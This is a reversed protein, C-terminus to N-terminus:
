RRRGQCLGMPFPYPARRGRQPGPQSGACCGPAEPGSSRPTPAPHTDGGRACMRPPPCTYWLVCAARSCLAGAWVTVASSQPLQVLFM